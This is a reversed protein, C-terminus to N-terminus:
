PKPPGGAMAAVFPSTITRLRKIADLLAEPAIVTSLKGNYTRGIRELIQLIIQTQEILQLTTACEAVSISDQIQIVNMIENFYSGKLQERLAIEIQRNRDQLLKRLVRSLYIFWNGKQLLEPAKGIAFPLQDLFDRELINLEPVTMM